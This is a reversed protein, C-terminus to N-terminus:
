VHKLDANMSLRLAPFLVVAVIWDAGSTQQPLSSHVESKTPASTPLSPEAWPLPTLPCPLQNADRQRRPRRTNTHQM